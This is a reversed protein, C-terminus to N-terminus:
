SFYGRYRGYTPTVEPNIRAKHREVRNKARKLYRHGNAYRRKCLINKGDAKESMGVSM